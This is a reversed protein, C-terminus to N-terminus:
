QPLLKLMHEVVGSIYIVIGLLLGKPSLDIYNIYFMVRDFNHHNLVM